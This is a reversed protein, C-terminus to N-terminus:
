RTRCFFVNEPGDANGHNHNNKSFLTGSDTWFDGRPTQSYHGGMIVANPAKGSLKPGFDSFRGFVFFFMFGVFIGRYM